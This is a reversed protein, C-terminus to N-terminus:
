PDAPGFGGPQLVDPTDFDRLVADSKWEVEVVHEAHRLLLARAGTDGTLAAMDAFFRRDWLVPNGRKGHYSPVVILSGEVANYADLLCDILAQTLLPMDGLCVLVADVDMPLAALGARLSASLGAQYDPARVTHIPRPGLAAAVLDAQHGLVAIVPRARSALVADAARAVMATGTADPVLLKNRPAMRRSLGAALLLAAVRPEAGGGPATRPSPRSPFDKLLGGVGLRAIEGSGVPEGAFLRALVLDIGNHAPSRACGPLVLAPVKGIHGLCILNGPDVPMGFHDVVGGVRVIAAPGVDCRDVTASAGAILLLEAGQALLDALAAALPAEEHPVRLPPLLAGTLARIRRETAEATGRLVSAKMGPLETLVLGARLKRFAPLSLPPMGTALAEAATLVTGPVAFPIIKATVVLDGAAVATADPLTAVTIGEHLLNIADICASDARFLGAHAAVLNARGTGARTAILGPAALADALRSAAENEPVDGLELLAATVHTHGAAALRALADATLPAGKPLTGDPLRTTHALIAGEAEALPRRGFIV